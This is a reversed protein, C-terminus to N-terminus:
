SLDSGKDVPHHRKDHVRVWLVGLGAFLADTIIEFGWHPVSVLLDWLTEEGM